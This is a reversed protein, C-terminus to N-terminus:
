NPKSNNWPIIHEIRPGLKTSKWNMKDVENLSIDWTVVTFSNPKNKPANILPKAYWNIFRWSSRTMKIDIADDTTANKGNEGDSIM